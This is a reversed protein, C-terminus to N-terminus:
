TRGARATSAGIAPTVSRGNRMRQRLNPAPSAADSISVDVHAQPRVRLDRRAHIVGALGLRADHLQRAGIGRQEGLRRAHVDVQARLDDVDVHATRRLFDATATRNPAAAAIFRQDRADQIRHHPGDVHRYRELDAGAPIALVCCHAHAIARM